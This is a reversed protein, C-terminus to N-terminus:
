GGVALNGRLGQLWKQIDSTYMQVLTQKDNNHQNLLITDEENQMNFENIKGEISLKFGELRGEWWNVTNSADDWVEMEGDRLAQSLGLEGLWDHFNLTVEEGQSNLGKVWGNAGLWTRRGDMDPDIARLMEMYENLVRIHDNTIRVKDYYQMFAENAEQIAEMRFLLLMELLSVIRGNYVYWDEPIFTGDALYLRGEIDRKGATPPVSDPLTCKFTGDSLALGDPISALEVEERHYVFKGNDLIAGDPLEWLHMLCPQGAEDAWVYTGSYFVAGKPLEDLCYEEKKYFYKGNSLLCGDPPAQTLTNDWKYWRGEYGYGEVIQGPPLNGLGVYGDGWKFAMGDLYRNLAYGDPFFSRDKEGGQYVYLGNSLGLGDPLKDITMRMGNYWYTGDGFAYGPPYVVPKGEVASHMQVRYPDAMTCLSIGM